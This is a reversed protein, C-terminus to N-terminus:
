YFPPLRPDAPTAKARAAKLAQEDIPAVDLGARLGGRRADYHLLM